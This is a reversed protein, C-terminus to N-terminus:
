VRPKKKRPKPETAGPARSGQTGMVLREVATLHDLVARHAGVEDRRRIAELIRQHDEHSRTPRGPTHLSEERSQTLLDMLAGDIRSIARNHASAAMAGHFAADQSLGTRGQAIEKSQEELIRAMEAIDEPTARRAALAAIAPELLRRAEFLEGVAERHPLIVLALPEILTEVSIDRVFTGEGARIELLGRSQLARLAERVSTRSVMFKEALDREPPLQDGSKLKGEAILQKVQRVIEEYIRTSKVPEIDM